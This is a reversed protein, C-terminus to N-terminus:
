GAAKDPCDINCDRHARDAALGGAAAKPRSGRPFWEAIRQDWAQALRCGARAGFSDSSHTSFTMVVDIAATRALDGMPGMPPTMIADSGADQLRCAQATRSCSPSSPAAVRNSRLQTSNAVPNHRQDANQNSPTIQNM